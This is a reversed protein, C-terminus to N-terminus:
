PATQLIVDWAWRGISSHNADDVKARYRFENGSPDKKKSEKYNLSLSEVQLSPLSHLENSESIGNHNNDQWLQLSSFVSDNSDIIGDSNGGNKVKDFEALAIFGNRNSSPPQPTFNGFLERGNDILGNGDRDLVLWADDSNATTWSIWKATGDANFDFHVGGGLNTLSFGNGQVDVLIPTDNSCIGDVCLWEGTCEPDCADLPICVSNQNCKFTFCCDSWNSCPENEIACSWSDAGSGDSSSGTCLSTRNPSFSRNVSAVDTPQINNVFRHCGTVSTNMISLCDEYAANSLGLPHGIEHGIRGRIEADSLNLIGGPLSMTHVGSGPTTEGCVNSSPMEHQRIVYDPTSTTQSLQFYYGTHNGSDDTANNWDNIAALTQNWIRPDTQTGWSSDIQLFIVRRGSGDPAAGHGGM